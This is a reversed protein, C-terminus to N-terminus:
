QSGELWSKRWEDIDQEAWVSRHGLKRPKPFRGEAIMRYLTAKSIPVVRAGKQDPRLMDNLGFFKTM